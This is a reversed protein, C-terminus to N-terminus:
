RSTTKFQSVKYLWLIWLLPMLAPFSVILSRNHSVLWHSGEILFSVLGAGCLLVGLVALWQARVRAAYAYVPIGLGYGVIYSLVQWISYDSVYPRGWGSAFSLKYLEFKLSVTGGLLKLLAFDTAALLVFIIHLVWLILRVGIARM